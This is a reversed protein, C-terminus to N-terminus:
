AHDQQIESSELEVAIPKLVNILLLHLVQHVLQVIIQLTNVNLVLILVLLVSVLKLMIFNDQHATKHSLNVFQEMLLIVSQVNFLVLLMLKSAMDQQAILIVNTIWSILIQIVDEPVIDMQFLLESQAHISAFEM